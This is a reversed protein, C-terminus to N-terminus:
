SLPFIHSSVIMNFADLIGPCFLTDAPLPGQVNYGSIKLDRVLRGLHRDEGHDMLGQEGAHPNFGCVGIRLEGLLDQFSKMCKLVIAGQDRSLLMESVQALPVHHSLLLLSFRNGWFCMMAETSDAALLHEEYFQTHGLFGPSVKAVSSKSLPGNILGRVSGNLVSSVSAMLYTYAHEGGRECEKGVSQIKSLSNENFSSTFCSRFEDSVSIGLSDYIRIDGLIELDYDLKEYVQNFANWTIEPGVGCPDGLTVAIRPREM